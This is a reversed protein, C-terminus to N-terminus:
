RYGRLDGDPKRNSPQSSPSPRGWVIEQQAIKSVFEFGKDTPHDIKQDEATFRRISSRDFSILKNEAAITITSTEGADSIAMVDMFGSFMIVPSSILDGNEDFAAVDTHLKMGLRGTVRRKESFLATYIGEQVSAAEMLEYYLGDQMYLNIHFPIRNTEIFVDEWGADEDKAVAVVLNTEDALANCAMLGMYLLLLKNYRRM